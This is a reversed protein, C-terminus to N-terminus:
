TIAKLGVCGAEHGDYSELPGRIFAGAREASHCTWPSIAKIPVVLGSRWEGIGSAPRRKPCLLRRM